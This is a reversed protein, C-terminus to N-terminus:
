RINYCFLFTKIRNHFNIVPYFTKIKDYYGTVIASYVCDFSHERLRTQPWVSVINIISGVGEQKYVYNTMSGKVTKM